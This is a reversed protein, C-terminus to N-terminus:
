ESPKTKFYYGGRYPKYGLNMYFREVGELPKLAIGSYEPPLNDFLLKMSKKGNGKNSGPVALILHLELYNKSNISLPREHTAGVSIIKGSTDRIIFPIYESHM